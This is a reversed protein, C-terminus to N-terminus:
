TGAKKTLLIFDALMLIFPRDAMGIRHMANCRKSIIASVGKCIQMLSSIGVFHELLALIASLDPSQTM